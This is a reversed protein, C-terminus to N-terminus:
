KSVSERELDEKTPLLDKVVEVDDIFSQAIEKETFLLKFNYKETDSM